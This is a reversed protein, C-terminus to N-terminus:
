YERKEKRIGVDKRGEKRRRKAKEKSVLKRKKIQLNKLNQFLPPLFKYCFLIYSSILIYKETIVIILYYDYYFLSAFFLFM